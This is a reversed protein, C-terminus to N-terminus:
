SSQARLSPPPLWHSSSTSRMPTGDPTPRRRYTITYGITVSCPVDRSHEGGNYLPGRGRLDYPLPHTSLMAVPYPLTITPLARAKHAIDDREIEALIADLPAALLACEVWIRRIAANVPDPPLVPAMVCEDESRRQKKTTEEQRRKDEVLAPKPLASEPSVMTQVAALASKVSVATCKASEQCHQKCADDALAKEWM